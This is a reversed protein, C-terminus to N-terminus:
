GGAKPDGCYNSVFCKAYRTYVGYGIGGRRSVCPKEVPQFHPDCNVQWLVDGQESLKWM